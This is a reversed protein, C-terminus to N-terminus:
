RVWDSCNVGSSGKPGFRGDPEGIPFGCAGLLKQLEKRESTTLARDDRPWPQFFAAGGRLRDALHGVSLAYATSNNYRLLVRFNRLLLFAPGRAGAPLTLVARGDISPFDGGHPLRVGLQMWESFPRETTDDVLTYDFGQPLAVEYGRTVGAKARDGASHESTIRRRPLLM